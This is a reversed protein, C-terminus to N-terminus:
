KLVIAKGIFKGEWLYFEGIDIFIDAAEKGSLFTFGITQTEGPLMSNEGLLPYGDYAPISKDEARFCPCGWGISIPNIKGGEATPYLYLKATLLPKTTLLFGRKSM